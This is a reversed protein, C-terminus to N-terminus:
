PRPPLAAAPPVEPLPLNSTGEAQRWGNRSDRRNGYHAAFAARGVKQRCRTSATRAGPCQIAPDHIQNAAKKTITGGPLLHPFSHLLPLHPSPGPRLRYERPRLQPRRLHPRFQPLSVFNSIFPIIVDIPIREQVRTPTRRHVAVVDSLEYARRCATAPHVIAGPATNVCPAGRTAM